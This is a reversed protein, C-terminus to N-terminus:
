RTGDSGCIFLPAKTANPLSVASASSTVSSPQNSQLMLQVDSASALHLHLLLLLLLPLLCFEFVADECKARPANIEM